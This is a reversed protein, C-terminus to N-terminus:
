RSLRVRTIQVAQFGTKCSPVRNKKPQRAKGPLEVLSAQYKMGISAPLAISGSLIRPAMTSTHSGDVIGAAFFPQSNKHWLAMALQRLCQRRFPPVLVEPGPLLLPAHGQSILTTGNGRRTSVLLLIYHQSASKPQGGRKELMYGKQLCRTCPPRSIGIYTCSSSLLAFFYRDICRWYPIERLPRVQALLPIRPM